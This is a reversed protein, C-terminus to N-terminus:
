PSELADAAEELARAAHRLLGEPSAGKEEDGQLYGPTMMPGCGALLWNLNVDLKKALRAALDETIRQGRRVINNIQQPSMGCIEGVETQTFGEKEIFEMLREGPTRGEQDVKDDLEKLDRDGRFLVLFGRACKATSGWPLARRKWM